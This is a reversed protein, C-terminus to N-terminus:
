ENTNEGTNQLGFILTDPNRHIYESLREISGATKELQQIATTLSYYLPSTPKLVTGAQVLLTNAQRVTTNIGLLTSEISGAIPPLKTKLSNVVGDADATLENIQDLGTDMKKLIPTIGTELQVLLQNLSTAATSFEDVLGQTKESDLTKALGGTLQEISTFTNMVKQYLEDLDINELMKTLQHMESPLTPIEFYEGNTDRYVPTSNKYFALDIFRKGTVISVVKLKARLGDECMAELFININDTKERDPNDVILTKGASLSVLVPITLKQNSKGNTQIHIKIERVQGVTVGRYTVPAGVNLGQLSGDFYMIVLNEEEFFRGGGFIVIATMFLFISFVVFIGIMAPQIKKNTM